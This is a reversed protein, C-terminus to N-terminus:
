KNKCNSVLLAVGFKQRLINVQLKIRKAISYMQQVLKNANSEQLNVKPFWLNTGKKMMKPTQPSSIYPSKLFLLFVRVPIIDMKRNM